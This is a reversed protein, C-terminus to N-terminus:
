ASPLSLQWSKRILKGKNSESFILSRITDMIAKPLQLSEARVKADEFDFLTNKKVKTKLEQTSTKGKHKGLISTLGAQTLQITEGFTGHSGELLRQRMLQSKDGFLHEKMRSRCIRGKAFLQTVDLPDSFDYHLDKERMGLLGVM